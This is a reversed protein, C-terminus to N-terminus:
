ADAAGPLVGAATLMETLEEQSLGRGAALDALGDRIEQALVSDANITLATKPATVSAAPQDALWAAIATTVPIALVLGISAVLIGVLEQAIDNFTLLDGLRHDYTAALTLVGLAGGVYAFAITYVTSAIHDRGIRMARTFLDRRTATPAAARLEWVASAQTITVDNLVGVGALVLGCLLVGRPDLGPVTNALHAMNEDTSPILNAGPIAWRALGAVIAVGAFTGLLATTSKVSVGHALYVVLFLVASATVLALALPDRGAMLAPLLFFWILALAAVLGVLAALGKLRAVALVVVAFGIALLWMPRSREFDVFLYPSGSAAAEPLYMLRLRDGPDFSDLPVDPNPMVSVILGSGDLKVEVQDRDREPHVATVQGFAYSAGNYLYPTPAPRQDASPWLLVLGVLTPLLLGAMLVTLWLRSRRSAPASAAGPTHTHM